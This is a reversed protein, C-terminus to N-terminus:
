KSSSKTKTSRASAGDEEEASQEKLEEFFEPSPKALKKEEPLDVVLEEWNDLTLRLRSLAKVSQNKKIGDPQEGLKRGVLLLLESITINMM